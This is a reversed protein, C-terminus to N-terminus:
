ADTPCAGHGDSAYAALGLACPSGEADTSGDRFGDPASCSTSVFVEGNDAQYCRVGECTGKAEGEVIDIVSKGELCNKSADYHQGEFAHVILADGCAPAGGLAGAAMAFLVVAGPRM